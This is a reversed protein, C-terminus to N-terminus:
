TTGLGQCLGHSSRSSSRNRCYGGLGQRCMFELFAMSDEFSPYVEQVHRKFRRKFNWNKIVEENFSEFTLRPVPPFAPRLANWRTHQSGFQKPVFPVVNPNLPGRSGVSNRDLGMGLKLEQPAFGPRQNFRDMDLFPPLCDEEHRVVGDNDTPSLKDPINVPVRM